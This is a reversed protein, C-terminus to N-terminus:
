SGPSRDPQRTCRTRCLGPSRTEDSVATTDPTHRAQAAIMAPTTQSLDFDRQTANLEDRLHRVESENMLPLEGIATEPYQAITALMTEYYGLWRQVTSEDYVDTNYDCDMRLGEVSEIVNLFLDFNSYAKANPTFHTAVGAMDLQEDVKELNFQLETLPLRNFDRKIGLDRVLAGYTYNQRDGADFVHDRVAKM